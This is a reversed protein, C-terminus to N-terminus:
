TETKAHLTCPQTGGSDSSIHRRSCPKCTWTRSRQNDPNQFAAFLDSASISTVFENFIPRPTRRAACFNKCPVNIWPRHLSTLGTDKRTSKLPATGYCSIAIYLAFSQVRTRVSPPPSTRNIKKVNARIITTVALEILIYQPRDDAGTDTSM